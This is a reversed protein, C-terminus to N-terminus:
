YHEASPSLISFSPTNWLFLFPWHPLLQHIICKCQGADPYVISTAVNSVQQYAGSLDMRRLHQQYVPASIAETIPHLPAPQPSPFVISMPSSSEKNMLPSSFHSLTTCYSASTSRLLEERVKQLYM